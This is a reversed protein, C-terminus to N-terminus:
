MSQRLQRPFVLDPQNNEDDVRHGGDDQRDEGVSYIVYGDDRLEYRLPLGDFPDTPVQPIFDPALEELSEPLRGNKRRFLEVGIVADVADRSATGRAVSEFVSSNSLAVLTALARPQKSLVPHSSAHDLDNDIRTVTDLAEPMPRQSAAIYREMRDLYESLNVRNLVSLQPIKRVGIIGTVRGGIMARHLGPQYDINRLRTQFQELHKDSFGAEPLLIQLTDQGHIRIATRVIQSLATPKSRLSEALELIARIAEAAGDPNRRHACVHTELQLLRAAARFEQVPEMAAAGGRGVVIDIPYRGPVGLDAAAHLQELAHSYQRLLKEAAELDPWPQGPPPIEVESDGVLPLKEAAARFEDTTLPEIGSLWMQAAEKEETAFGYFSELEASTCPEGAARIEVFQAELRSSCRNLWILVTVFLVLAPIGFFILLYAGCGLRRLGQKSPDKKQM